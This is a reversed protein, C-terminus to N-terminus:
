SSVKTVSIGFLWWVQQPIITCTSTPIGTRILRRRRCTANPTVSFWASAEWGPSFYCGTESPRHGGELIIRVGIVEFGSSFRLTCKGGAEGRAKPRPHKRLQAPAAATGAGRKWGAPADEGRNGLSAADGSPVRLKSM